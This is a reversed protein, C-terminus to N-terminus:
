APRQEPQGSSEPPSEPHSPPTIEMGNEKFFDGLTKEGDHEWCFGFNPKLARETDSRTGRYTAEKAALLREDTLHPYAARLRTWDAMNEIHGFFQNAEFFFRKWTRM